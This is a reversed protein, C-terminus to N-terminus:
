IIFNLINVRETKRFLENRDIFKLLDTLIDRIEIEIEKM